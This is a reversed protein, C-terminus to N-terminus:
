RTPGRVLREVGLDLAHVDALEPFNDVHELFRGTALCREQAEQCRLNTELLRKSVVGMFAEAMRPTSNLWQALNEYPVRLLQSTELARVSASRIGDTFYAMEGIPEIPLVMSLLTEVGSSNTRFVELQGSALVYFYPDRMEQAIFQTGAPVSVEEFGDSLEGLEDNSLTSFTPCRHLRDVRQARLGALVQERPLLEADILFQGLRKGAGREGASRQRLAQEIIEPPCDLYAGLKYPPPSPLRPQLNVTPRTAMISAAESEHTRGKSM